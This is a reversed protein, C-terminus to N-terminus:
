PIRCMNHKNTNYHTSFFKWLSILQFKIEDYRIKQQIENTIVFQKHFLAWFEYFTHTMNDTKNYHKHYLTNILHLLYKYPMQKYNDNLLIYMMTLYSMQDKLLMHVDTFLIKMPVYSM